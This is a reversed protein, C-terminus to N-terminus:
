GHYRAPQVSKAGAYHGTDRYSRKPVTRTQYFRIQAVRMGEWIRLWWPGANYLELTLRGTWGPDIFGATVHVFLFWRGLSSCGAIDAALPQHPAISVVEYTCGLLVGGPPLWVSKLKNYRSPLYFPKLPQTDEGPDFARANTYRDDMHLIHNNPHMPQWEPILTENALHVDYSAPQLYEESYRDILINGADMERQIDVDSLLM